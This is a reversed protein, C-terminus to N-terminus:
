TNTGSRLQNGLGYSQTFTGELDSLAFPSDQRIQLHTQSDQPRSSIGDGIDNIGLKIGDVYSTGLVPITKSFNDWDAIIEDVAGAGFSYGVAIVGTPPLRSEFMGRGQIIDLLINKIHQLVVSTHELFDNSVGLMNKVEELARGSRFLIVDNNNSLVNFLKMMGVESEIDERESFEQKNGMILIILPKGGNSELFHESLQFIKGTANPGAM